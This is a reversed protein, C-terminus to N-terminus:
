RIYRTSVLNENRLNDLVITKGIRLFQIGYNVLKDENLKAMKIMHDEAQMCVYWELRLSGFLYNYNPLATYKKTELTEFIFSKLEDYDKATFKTYTKNLVALLKIRNPPLKDLPVESAILEVGKNSFVYKQFMSLENEAEQLGCLELFNQLISNEDWNWCDRVYTFLQRFNKCKEIEGLQAADFLLEADPNDSIRLNHCLIKCQELKDSSCKSDLLVILRSLLASFQSTLTKTASKKGVPEKAVTVEKDPQTSIQQGDDNLATHM